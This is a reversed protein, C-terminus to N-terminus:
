FHCYFDDGSVNFGGSEAESKRVMENGKAGTMGQKNTPKCLNINRSSGKEQVLNMYGFLSGKPSITFRKQGETPFSITHCMIM